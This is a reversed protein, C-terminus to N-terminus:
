NFFLFLFLFILLKSYSFVNTRISILVSSQPEWFNPIMISGHMNSEIQFRYIMLSIEIQDPKPKILLDDFREM